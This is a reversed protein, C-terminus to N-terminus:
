CGGILSTDLRVPVYSGRQVRLKKSARGLRIKNAVMPTLRFGWLKNVPLVEVLACGPLADSCRSTPPDQM